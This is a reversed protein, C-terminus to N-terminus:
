KTWDTEDIPFLKDLCAQIEDQEEQTFGDFMTEFAEDPTNNLVRDYFDETTGTLQYTVFETNEM